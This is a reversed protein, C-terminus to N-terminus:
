EGKYLALARRFKSTEEPILGYLAAMQAAYRTMADANGSKLELEVECLPLQLQGGTLIGSDLALEATFDPHLVPKTIRTFAAGCIAELGEQVLVPLERPCGLKCLMPIAEQIRDCETEWEGRGRGSVPAKLTCVHRDNEKRCRLTYRRASLQGTPTDYYTTQMAITQEPGAFAARLQELQQETARFKLEYEIGM